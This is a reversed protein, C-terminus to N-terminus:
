RILVRGSPQCRVTRRACLCTPRRFMQITVQCTDLVYYLIVTIIIIIIIIIILLLRRKITAYLLRELLLELKSKLKKAKLGHSSCM